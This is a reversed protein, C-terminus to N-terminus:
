RKASKQSTKTGYYFGTAASVLAILPTFILQYRKLPPELRDPKIIITGIAVLITFGLIGLLIYAIRRRATDEHPRSDYAKTAILNEQLSEPENSIDLEAM